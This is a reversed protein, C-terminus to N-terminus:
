FVANKALDLAQEPWFNGAKPGGNCTGDSEGPKKLWLYADVLPDATQATPVVGLGRGPPNCWCSEGEPHTCTDPPGKGNRSTDIVFHKGQLRKSLEKGFKISSETTKYNSVNLAFGDAEDIGAAQLREAMDPAEVWDSNGADIYVATNGLSVLSHVAFRLLDLREKQEAASLCNKLLGLADPELIVAARRDGIGKAMAALWKKYAAGREIGGASYQGCDRKPINYVVFVPLAGKRQLLTVRSGVWDEVDGTWEGIWDAGGGDAVKAFLAAKQPESDKLRRSELRAPSHPDSFFRVGVFPNQGKKWAAVAPPADESKGTATEGTKGSRTTGTAPTLSSPSPPPAICSVAVFGAVTRWAAFGISTRHWNMAFRSVDGVAVM